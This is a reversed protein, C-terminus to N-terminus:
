RWPQRKQSKTITEIEMKLDKITKNLKRVQKTTNEQLEKLSKQKRM